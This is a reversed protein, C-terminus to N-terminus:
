NDSKIRLEVNKFMIGKNPGVIIELVSFDEGHITTPVNDFHHNFVEQCVNGYTEVDVEYEKPYGEDSFGYKSFIDRLEQPTM